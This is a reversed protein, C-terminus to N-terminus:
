NRKGLQPWHVWRKRYICLRFHRRGIFTHSHMHVLSEMALMMWRILQGVEENDGQESLKFIMSCKARSNVPVQNCWLNFNNSDFYVLIYCENKTGRPLLTREQKCLVRIYSFCSAQASLLHGAPSQRDGQCLALGSQATCPPFRLLLCPSSTRCRLCPM